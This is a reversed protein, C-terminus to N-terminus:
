SGASTIIESLQQLDVPKVLHHDIGAERTRKRDEDSGYGTVAILLPQVSVRRRLLQALHTGDTSPLGLDLLVIEPRQREALALAEDSDHAVEIRHGRGELWVAITDAADRNDEVILVRRAPQGSASARSDDDPQKEAKQLQATLPLHVIFESGRGPGESFAEISGHHMEILRKVLTLGIGLGGPKRASGQASQVFLDFIFPLLEEPIGMGDDRVRIELQEDHARVTLAIDSGRQTYKIANSLLNSIVQVLRGADGDILIAESPVDVKLEHRREDVLAYASQVAQEVLEQVTVTERRLAIKGRTVRSVDLLDDLLRSMQRSQREAAEGIRSLRPDDPVYSRIVDLSTVIAALPNRLEHALMALFEDKRRAAAELEQRAAQSEELLARYRGARDLAIAAQDALATLLLEVEPDATIASRCQAALVGKVRGDHIVPVALFAGNQEFGLAESLAVHIREDMPVAFSGAPADSMGHHAAVHAVGNEDALLFACKDAGCLEAGKEVVLGIVEQYDLSDAIARNIALLEHLRESM